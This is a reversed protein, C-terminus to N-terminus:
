RISLSGHQSDIRACDTRRKVPKRETRGRKV